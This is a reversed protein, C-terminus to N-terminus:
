GESEDNRLEAEARFWDELEQGPEGGRALYLEFARAAIREPPVPTGTARDPEAASVKMAKENAKRSRKMTM